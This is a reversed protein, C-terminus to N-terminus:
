ILQSQHPLSLAVEPLLDDPVWTGTYDEVWAKMEEEDSLSLEGV